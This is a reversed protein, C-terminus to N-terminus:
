KSLIKKIEIIDEDKLSPINEIIFSIYLDGRSRSDKNLGKNEIKYEKSPFLIGLDRTNVCIDEGFLSINFECGFTDIYNITQTTHLDNGRKKFQSHESTVIKIKIKETYANNVGIEITQNDKIGPDSAVRINKTSILTGNGSCIQCDPNLLKGTTKCKSCDIRINQVFIHAKIQHIAFGNGHCHICNISCECDTKLSVPIIKSFGNHVDNLEINLEINMIEKQKKTFSQQNFQQNFHQHFQSFPNFDFGNFQSRPNDYEQRKDKDSLVSYAENIEKFLSDDGNNKDPHHKLALKKYSIKIEEVTATKSCGLIAYLDKKTM